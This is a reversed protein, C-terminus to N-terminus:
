RVLVEAAELDLDALLSRLYAQRDGEDTALMAPALSELTAQDSQAREILELVVGLLHPQGRYEALDRPAHLGTARLELALVGLESALEDAVAAVQEPDRLHGALPSRGSLVVRAVIEEGDAIEGLRERVRDALQGETCDPDVLEIVEFRVSALPVFEVEARGDAEIAALLAGKAGPEGIDHSQLCGPYWSIPDSSLQQREHVHGLAVYGYGGTALDEPTCPAYRDRAAISGSVQAHVVAVSPIGRPASPLQAVLNDAVREHGHGIATITGNALEVTVPEPGTALTFREAPWEMELAELWDGPDHNGTAVVVHVGADSVRQLESIVWMRTALRVSRGDFLDGALVLADVGRAIALACLRAFASREAARVRERVSAELSLCPADLHCDAAHVIRLTM